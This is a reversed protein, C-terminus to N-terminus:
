VLTIIDSSPQIYLHIQYPLVTFVKTFMLSQLNINIRVEKRMTTGNTDSIERSQHAEVFGCYKENALSPSTRPRNITFTTQSPSFFFFAPSNM